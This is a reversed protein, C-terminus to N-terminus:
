VFCGFEFAFGVLVSMMSLWLDYRWCLGLVICLCFCHWFGVGIVWGYLCDPLGFM